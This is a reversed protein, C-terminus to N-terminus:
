CEHVTLATCMAALDAAGVLALYPDTVLVCAADQMARLTADSDIAGEVCELACLVLLQNEESLGLEVFLGLGVQEGGADSGSADSPAEDRSGSGSRGDDSGKFVLDLGPPLIPRTRDRYRNNRKARPIALASRRRTKCGSTPSCWDCCCYSVFQYAAMSTWFAAVCLWLFAMVVLGHQIVRDALPIYETAEPNLSSHFSGRTWVQSGHNYWWTGDYYGHSVRAAADVGDRFGKASAHVVGLCHWLYCVLAVLACITGVSYYYYYYHDDDTSAGGTEGM